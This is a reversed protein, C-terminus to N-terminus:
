GGSANRTLRKRLHRAARHPINKLAALPTPEVLSWDEICIVPLGARRAIEEAEHRASEIFLKARTNRYVAAKFPAAGGMRQRAVANEADFMCLNRYRVGHRQLWEETQSRYKELRGTVLWGVEVTPIIQPKAHQLFVAYCEGDDDQDPLPNVTIVGDIDVCSNALIDHHMVNWAFVQGFPLEEFTLDVMHRAQPTAFVAAYTVNHDPLYKRIRRQVARMQSGHGISDDIVLINPKSKERLENSNYALKRRGTSITKSGLLGDIDTLPCNLYLAVLTAALMGSRPVGVVLDLDRPVDPLNRLVANNLDDVSRFHM